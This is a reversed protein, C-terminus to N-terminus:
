DLMGILEVIQLYEKRINEVLLALDEKQRRGERLANVLAACRESLIQFGLNASTGKLTHAGRELGDFNDEKAASEIESFSRDDPFKKVFRELLGNNGGFRHLTTQVDGDIQKYLEIIDM